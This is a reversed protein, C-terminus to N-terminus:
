REREKRGEKFKDGRERRGEMMEVERDGEKRLKVDM